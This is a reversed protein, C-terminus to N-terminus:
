LVSGFNLLLRGQFIVSVTVSVWYSAPPDDELWLPSSNFKPPTIHNKGRMEPTRITPSQRNKPWVFKMVNSNPQKFSLKTYPNKEFM